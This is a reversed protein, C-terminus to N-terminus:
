ENRVRSAIHRLRAAASEGDGSPVYNCGLERGLVHELAADDRHALAASSRVLFARSM